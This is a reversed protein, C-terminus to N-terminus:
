SEKLPFIQGEFSSQRARYFSIENWSNGDAGANLRTEGVIAYLGFFSCIVVFNILLSSVHTVDCNGM